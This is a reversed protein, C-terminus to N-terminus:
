STEMENLISELRGSKASNNNVPESDTDQFHPRRRDKGAADMLSPLNAGKGVKGAQEETENLEAIEELVAELPRQREAPEENGHLVARDDAGDLDDLGELLNELQYERGYKDDNSVAKTEMEESAPLSDGSAGNGEAALNLTQCESADDGMSNGKEEFEDLSAATQIFAIRDKLLFYATVSLVGAAALGAAGYIYEALLSLSAIISSGATITLKSKVNMQLPAFYFIIGLIVAAAAAILVSEM